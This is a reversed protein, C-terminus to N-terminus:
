RYPRFMPSLHILFSDYSHTGILSGHMVVHLECLRTLSSLIASRNEYFM